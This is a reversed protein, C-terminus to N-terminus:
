NEVHSQFRVLNLRLVFKEVVREGCLQLGADSRGGNSEHKL